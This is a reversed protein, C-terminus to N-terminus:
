SARREVDIMLDSAGVIEVVYLRYGRLASPFHLVAVWLLLLFPASLMPPSHFFIHKNKGAICTRHKQVRCCFLFCFLLPTFVLFNSLVCVISPRSGTALADSLSIARLVFYLCICSYNTRLVVIYIVHSPKPSSIELGFSLAFSLFQLRWVDVTRGCRDYSRNEVIVMARAERGGEREREM